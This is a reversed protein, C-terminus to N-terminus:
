ECIKSGEPKASLGRQGSLTMGRLSADQRYEYPEAGGHIREVNTQGCFWALIVREQQYPSNIAVVSSNFDREM